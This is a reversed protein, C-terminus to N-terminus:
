TRAGFIRDAEIQCYRMFASLNAQHAPDLAARQGALELKLALYRPIVAMARADHIGQPTTKGELYNKATGPSCELMNALRKVAGPDNGVASRMVAQVRDTLAMQTITFAPLDKHNEARFNNAGSASFTGASEPASITEANKTTSLSM